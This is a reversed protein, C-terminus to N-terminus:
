VQKIKEWMESNNFDDIVLSVGLQKLSDPDHTSAVAITEIGAGMASRIGSPSDEFVITETPQIKLQELCYKYPAPDPKGATMEEGLVVTKFRETLNLAELMFQANLRPANTVVATKLEQKEIWNLLELFGSLPELNKAQERFLQEKYEAFDESEKPSFDPLLDQIIEPNQRGSIKVKYTDHDMEIGQEKLMDQWIKFHLPDTNALTGDLDFLIAKLIM